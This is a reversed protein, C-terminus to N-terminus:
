RKRGCLDILTAAPVARRVAAVRELDGEGRLKVKFRPLHRVGHAEASMIGPTDVSLTYVTPVARPRQFNALQWVPTALRSADLEWLACDLANRIPCAPLLQQLVARNFGPADIASHLEELRALGDAIVADDSEHVECEGRGRHPGDQLECVVARATQITSKAIKFARALPWSEQWVRMRM